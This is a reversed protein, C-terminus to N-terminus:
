DAPVRVAAQRRWRRWEVVCCRCNILYEVLIELDVLGGLYAAFNGFSPSLTKPSVSFPNDDASGEDFPNPDHHM